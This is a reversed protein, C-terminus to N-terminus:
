TEYLLKGLSASRSGGLAALASEETDHYTPGSHTLVVYAPSPGAPLHKCAASFVSNERGDDFRLLVSDDRVGRIVTACQGMRRGSVSGTNRVIQIRDGVRFTENM